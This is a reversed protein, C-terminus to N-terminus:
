ERTKAPLGSYVRIGNKVCINYYYAADNSM